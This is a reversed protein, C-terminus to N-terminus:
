ITTFQDEKGAFSATKWDGESLWKLTNEDLNSMRKEALDKSAIPQVLSKTCWILPNPGTKKSLAYAAMKGSFTSCLWPKPANDPEIKGEGFVKVAELQPGTPSGYYGAFDGNLILNSQVVEKFENSVDPFGLNVMMEITILGLFKVVWRVVFPIRAFIHHILAGHIKLDEMGPPLIGQKKALAFGICLGTITCSSGVPLLIDSVLNKPESNIQNCLEVFGGAQGFVGTPCNGGLMFCIDTVPKFILTILMFFVNDQVNLASKTFSLVSILNFSNDWSSGEDASLIQGVGVNACNKEVLISTMVAQNSALGGVGWMNGGTRKQRILACPFQYEMTRVKNGGYVKSSM